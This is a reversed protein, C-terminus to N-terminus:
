FFRKRMHNRKYGVRWGRDLFETSGDPKAFRPMSNPTQRIIPNQLNVIPTPPKDIGLARERRNALLLGDTISKPQSRPRKGTWKGLLAIRVRDRGSDLPLGSDSPVNEIYWIWGIKLRDELFYYMWYM